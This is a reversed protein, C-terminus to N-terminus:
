IVHGEFIHRHMPHAEPLGQLISKVNEPPNLGLREARRWRELRTIHLGPGFSPDLDFQTLVRTSEPDLPELVTDRANMAQYSEKDSQLTSSPMIDAPTTKAVCKQEHSNRKPHNLTRAARETSWYDTLRM